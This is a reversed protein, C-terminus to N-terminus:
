ANDSEPLQSEWAQRTLHHEHLPVPGSERQVTMDLPRLYTLGMDRALRRAHPLDVPIRGLIETAGHTFMYRLAERAKGRVDVSKPLFLTHADYVGPAIRHFVWGGTEFELGICDAWFASLDFAGRGKSAIAPFVRPDNAVSQLFDPSTSVRM